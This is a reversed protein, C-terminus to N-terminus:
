DRPGSYESQPRIIPESREQFAHAIWGIVRSVAFTPTLPLDLEWV